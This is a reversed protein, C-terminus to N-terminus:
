YCENEIDRSIQAIGPAHQRWKDMDAILNVQQDQCASRLQQIVADSVSSLKLCIYRLHPFSPLLETLSVIGDSTDDNVAFIVQVSPPLCSIVAVVQDTDLDAGIVNPWRLRTLHALAQKLENVVSYM